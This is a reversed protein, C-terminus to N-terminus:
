KKNTFKRPYGGVDLMNIDFSVVNANAPHNEKLLEIFQSVTISVECKTCPVRASPAACTSEEIQVNPKM